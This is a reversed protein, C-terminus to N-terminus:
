MKVATNPSITALSYRGVFAPVTLNYSVEGLVFSVMHDPAEINVCEEFAGLAHVNADFVGSILGPKGSADIM